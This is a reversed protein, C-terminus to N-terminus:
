CKVNDQDYPKLLGYDDNAMMKIMLNYEGHHDLHHCFNIIAIM